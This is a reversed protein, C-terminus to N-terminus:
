DRESEKRYDQVDVTPMTRGDVQVLMTTRTKDLKFDMEEPIISDLVIVIDLDAFRLIKIM